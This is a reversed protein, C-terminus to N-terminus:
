RHAQYYANYDDVVGQWGAAYVEELAEDWASLPKDGVIIEMAVKNITTTWVDKKKFELEKASLFGALGKQIYRTQIYDVSKQFWEEQLAVIEPIRKTLWFDKDNPRRFMMAWSRWKLFDATGSQIPVVANNEMKYHVGEVGYQLLKWGADSLLYDFVGVIHEAKGQAKDTVAWANYIGTQTLIPKEKAQAASLAVQPYDLFEVQADPQVKRLEVLDVDAGGVFTNNTAVVGQIWKDHKIRPGKNTIFDPELGGAQYLKRYFELVSKFRGDRHFTGLFVNGSGDDYWRLDAHWCEAFDKINSTATGTMFDNNDTIGFTDNKGNGDPDRTAVAVSYRIWDEPTKPVEMGLKERWDRRNLWFDERIITCRPVMYLRGDKARAADWAVQHTHKQLNPAKAIYTDLAQLKGAERMEDYLADEPGMLMLVDPYDGSALLVNRKEWATAAPAVIWTIKSNTDRNIQEVWPNNEPVFDPVTRIFLSFSVPGQAAAEGEKEGSAWAATAWGALLLLVIAKTKM